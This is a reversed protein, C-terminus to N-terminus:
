IGTTGFEDAYKRIKEADLAMKELKKLRKREERRKKRALKAKFGRVLSYVMYIIILGPLVIYPARLTLLLLLFGLVVKDFMRLEM